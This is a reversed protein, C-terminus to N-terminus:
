IQCRFGHREQQKHMVCSSIVYLLFVAPLGKVAPGSRGGVVDVEWDLVDVICLLNESSGIM